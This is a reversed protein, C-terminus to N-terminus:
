ECAGHEPGCKFRVHIHSTHGKEHRVVGVNARSSRPFQVVEELWKADAGSARAAQVLRRQRGYELFIYEVEGTALFAEVLRWAAPWDIEELSPEKNRPVGVLKPLRVDADRGNQHSKHPRLRGGGERSIAGVVLEGEYSSRARFDMIATQLQLITHSTGFAHEAKAIRYHESEPLQVGNRLRGRNPHGVAYGGPRVQFTPRATAPGVPSEGPRDRYYHLVMGPRLPKTLVKRNWFKLDKQSVGLERSIKSISDGRQVQYAAQERVPAAIRPRLKLVERARLYSRSRLPRNWKLLEEKTVGYRAAVQLLTEGPIVEHSVWDQTTERPTEAAM